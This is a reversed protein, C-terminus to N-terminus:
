TLGTRDVDSYGSTFAFNVLTSEPVRLTAGNDYGPTSALLAPRTTNPTVSSGFTLGGVIKTRLRL